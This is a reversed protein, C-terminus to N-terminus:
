VVAKGGTSQFPSTFVRVYVGYGWCRALTDDEFYFLDPLPMASQRVIINYPGTIGHEVPNYRYIWAM